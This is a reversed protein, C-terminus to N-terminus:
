DRAYSVEGVTQSKIKDIDERAMALLAEANGYARIFANKDGHYSYWRKPRFNDQQRHHRTCLPITKLHCNEVTRGELHHIETPHTSVGHFRTCVICPVQSVWHLWEREKATPPRTTLM